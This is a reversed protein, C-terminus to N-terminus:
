RKKRETIDQVPVIMRIPKDDRDFFVKIEDTYVTREEGDTRMIHWEMPPTKQGSQVSKIASRLLERSDPLVIRNLINEFGM